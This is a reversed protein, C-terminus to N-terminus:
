SAFPCRTTARRMKSESRGPQHCIPATQSGSGWRSFMSGTCISQNYRVPRDATAIDIALKESVAVVIQHHIRRAV